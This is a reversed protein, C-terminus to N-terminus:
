SFPKSAANLLPKQRFFVQASPLSEDAIVPVLFSLIPDSDGDKLPEYQRVQIKSSIHKM